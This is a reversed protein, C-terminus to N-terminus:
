TDTCLKEDLEHLLNTFITNVQILFIFLIQYKMCNITLLFFLFNTFRVWSHYVGSNDSKKGSQDLMDSLDRNGSRVHLGADFSMGAGGKCSNVLGTLVAITIMFANM